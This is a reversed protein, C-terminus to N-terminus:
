FFKKLIIKQSKLIKFMFMSVEFLLFRLPLMCVSFIKIKKKEKTKQIKQSSVKKFLKLWFNLEQFCPLLPIYIYLKKAFM